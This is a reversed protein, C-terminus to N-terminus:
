SRGDHCHNLEQIPDNGPLGMAGRGDYPKRANRDKGLAHARKRRGEEVASLSKEPFAASVGASTGVPSQLLVGDHIASRSLRASARRPCFTSSHLRLLSTSRFTSAHRIGRFDFFGWGVVLVYS